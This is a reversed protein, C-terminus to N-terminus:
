ENEKMKKRYRKGILSYSLIIVPVFLLVGVLLEIGFNPILSMVFAILAIDFSSVLAMVQLLQNYNIKDLDIKYKKIIYKIEVPLKERNKKAKNVIFIEYVILVLIFSLVSLIINEKM